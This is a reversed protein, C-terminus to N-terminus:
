TYEPNLAVEVTHGSSRRKSSNSTLFLLGWEATQAIPDSLLDSALRRLDTEGIQGEIFYLDQCELHTISKLGLAHADTLYTTSRPDDPQRPRVIFRYRNLGM